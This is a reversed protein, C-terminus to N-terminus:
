MLCKLELQNELIEQAFDNEPIETMKKAHIKLNNSLEKRNQNISSQRTKTQKEIIQEEYDKKQVESIV